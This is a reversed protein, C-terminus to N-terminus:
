CYANNSKIHLWTEAKFNDITNNYLLRNNFCYKGNQREKIASVMAKIKM